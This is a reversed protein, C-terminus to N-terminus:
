RPVERHSCGGDGATKCRACDILVVWDGDRVAREGFEGRGSGRTEREGETNV